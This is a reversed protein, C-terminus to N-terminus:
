EKKKKKQKPCLTQGTIMQMTRKEFSIIPSTYQKTPLTWKIQAFQMNTSNKKTQKLKKTGWEGWVHKSLSM